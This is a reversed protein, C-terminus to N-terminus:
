GEDEIVEFATIKHENFTEVRDVWGMVNKAVFISGTTFREKDTLLNTIARGQHAEGRKITYTFEPFKKKWAYVTDRCVDLYVALGDITPVNDKAVGYSDAFYAKTLKITEEHKYDTPRGAPM